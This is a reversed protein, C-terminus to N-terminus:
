WQNGRDLKDRGGNWGDPRKRAGAVILGMLPRLPKKRWVQLFAWRGSLRDVSWGPVAGDIIRRGLSACQTNAEEETPFREGPSFGQGRGNRRIELDATWRRSEQLQYPRALIRFGKYRITTM